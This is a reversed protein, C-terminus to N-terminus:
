GNGVEEGFEEGCWCCRDQIWSCNCHHGCDRRSAHCEKEPLEECCSSCVIDLESM